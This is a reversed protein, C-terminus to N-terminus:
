EEFPLVVLDKPYSNLVECGDETILVLDEIRVGIGEEPIYIGPEVSFCQGPQIIAENVSSVDGNEHDEMGISHGTRHTFYQGFGKSTIYDRAANDVDCMRNGPKAAAIGRLNAELVTNYIERARDSVEGLFVTRTMDSAYGNKMGGIDLVVCDGRKAKSSDAEHHPDAGNKGYSTIPHFSVGECGVETYLQFCKATLEEETMGQNAFPILKAMVQDNLRSSIRMKEQEEADKIRRVGDVIPSGNVYGSASNLEQMHLLFGSPLNKDIGVIANHDLLGGLIGASDETDDYWVLECTLDSNAPFLKNIVLKHNGDAFLVLAILREGPYFMQGILYYISHPDSVVLQTLNKEQMATVVRNIKQMQM